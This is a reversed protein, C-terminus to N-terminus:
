FRYPGNKECAATILSEFPKGLWLGLSRIGFWLNLSLSSESHVLGLARFKGQWVSSAEFNFPMPHILLDPQVFTLNLYKIKIGLFIKCSFDFLSKLKEQDHALTVHYSIYSTYVLHCFNQGHFFLQM